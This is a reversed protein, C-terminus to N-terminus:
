AMAILELRQLDDVCFYSRTYEIIGQRKLDALLASIVQRTAGALEALEQHTLRVDISHGHSCRRGEQSILDHLINAVRVSLPSKFQWALRRELTEIRAALSKLLKLGDLSQCDLSRELSPCDFSIVTAPGHAIAQHVCIASSHSYPVHGFMGGKGVIRQIWAQGNPQNCMLKVYGDAVVWSLKDPPALFIIEKSKFSQRKASPVNECFRVLDLREPPSTWMSRGRKDPCLSENLRPIM